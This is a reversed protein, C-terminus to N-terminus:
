SISLFLFNIGEKEINTLSALKSLISSKELSISISYENSVTTADLEVISLHKGKLKFLSIETITKTLPYDQYNQLNKDYARLYSNNIDKSKKELILKTLKLAGVVEKKEIKTVDNCDINKSQIKGLNYFFNNLVLMLINITKPAVDPHTKIEPHCVNLYNIKNEKDNDRVISNIADYIPSNQSYLITINDPIERGKIFNSFKEQKSQPYLRSVKRPQTFHSDFSNEEHYTDSVIPDVAISKYGGLIGHYLTATGGKSAGYLVVDSKEINNSHLIFQILDQVGEEIKNSYTTNMYFNGLVGGIDGIRLVYTNQPIYKSITSFNTFFNRRSIDANFAFDAVSSFLVILRNKGFNLLPEDLTYYLEKYIQLNKVKVNHKFSEANIFKEFKSVGQSAEILYFGKSALYILLDKVLPERQAFGILNHMREKELGVNSRDIYLISRPLNFDFAKSLMENTLVIKLEEM